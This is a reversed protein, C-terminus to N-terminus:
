DLLAAELKQLRDVFWLHRSGLTSGLRGLMKFIYAIPFFNPLSETSACFIAIKASHKSLQLSVIIAELENM